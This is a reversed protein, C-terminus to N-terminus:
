GLLERYVEVTQRAAREWSFAEARKRGADALERRLDEDSALRQLAAALEEVRFPDVYMVAEGGVETLASRSSTVVPVGRSMAELVPIGFGEDLSPFAFIGAESYLKELVAPAVYGLVDIRDAAPSASIVALVEGAGFGESGALTLRWPGPVSEFAQVLRVLNKRTQIAGVHLITTKRRREPARPLHVGHRIVRIRSPNVQLLNSVQDATFQSVAIILDSRAAARKAQEAFRERFEATSYEGTLVFLDHFTAVARRYRASPLRQNLGHILRATSTRRNELLLRRRCNPPAPRLLGRLLRHARYALCIPEPALTGAVGRIIENSYV